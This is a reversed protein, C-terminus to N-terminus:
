LREIIPTITLPNNHNRGYYVFPGEGLIKGGPPIFFEPSEGNRAEVKTTHFQFNSPLEIVRGGPGVIATGDQTTYATGGPGVIATGGSGATAIGGPGAIAVGGRRVKLKMIKPGTSGPTRALDEVFFEQYGPEVEPEKNPVEEPRPVVRKKKKGNSGTERKNRVNGTKCPETHPAYEVINTYASWVGNYPSTMALPIYDNLSRGQFTFPSRLHISGLDSRPQMPFNPWLSRGTDVGSYSIPSKMLEPGIFASPSVVTQYHQIRRVVGKEGGAPAAPDSNVAAVIGKDGTNRAEIGLARNYADADYSLHQHSKLVDDPIVGEQSDHEGGFNDNYMEPTPNEPIKKYDADPIDNGLAFDEFMDHSRAVRNLIKTQGRPGNALDSSVQRVVAESEGNGDLPEYVLEVPIMAGEFYMKADFNNKPEAVQSSYPLSATDSEASIQQAQADQPEYKRETGFEPRACASGVIFILVAAVKM